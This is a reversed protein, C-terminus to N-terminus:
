KANRNNKINCAMIILNTGVFCLVFAITGLIANVGKGEYGLSMFSFMNISVLEMIIGSIFLKMHGFKENMYNYVRNTNMYIKVIFNM